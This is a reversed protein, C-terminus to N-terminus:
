TNQARLAQVFEPDNLEIWLANAVAVAEGGEDLIASDAFHKRGETGKPWAMVVLREGTKPRRRIEASLAGLLMMRHPPPRLAFASPCDLAAWLYEPAVLGDEGALSEHPTWHDANL